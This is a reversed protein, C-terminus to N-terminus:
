FSYYTSVVVDGCQECTKSYETKESPLLSILELPGIEGARYMRGIEALLADDFQEREQDNLHYRPDEGSYNQGNVIIANSTCGFHTEVKYNMHSEIACVCKTVSISDGVKWEHINPALGPRIRIITGYYSGPNRTDRPEEEFYYVNQNPDVYQIVRKIKM